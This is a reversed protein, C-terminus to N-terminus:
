NDLSRVKNTILVEAACKNCRHATYSNNENIGNYYTFVITFTAPNKGCAICLCNDHTTMTVKSVKM